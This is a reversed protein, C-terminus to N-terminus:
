GNSTRVPAAPDRAPASAEAPPAPLAAPPAPEPTAPKPPEEVAERFSSRLDNSARRFEAMARGLSRALEPLKSPGFVILAVILIVLLETMGIGFM